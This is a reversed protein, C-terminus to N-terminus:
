MTIVLKILDSVSTYENTGFVRYSIWPLRKLLVYALALIIEFVYHIQMLQRLERRTVLAM